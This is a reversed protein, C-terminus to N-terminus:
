STPLPVWSCGLTWLVCAIRWLSPMRSKTKAFLRRNQIPYPNHQVIQYCCMSCHLAYLHRLKNPITVRQGGQFFKSSERTVVALEGPWQSALQQRRAEVGHWTPYKFKGQFFTLIHPLMTEPALLFLLVQEEWTGNQVLYIRRDVKSEHRRPPAM